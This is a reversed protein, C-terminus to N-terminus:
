AVLHMAMQVINFSGDWVAVRNWEVEDVLQNIITILYKIADENQTHSIFRKMVVVEGEMDYVFKGLLEMGLQGESNRIGLRGVAFCSGYDNRTVIIFDGNLRCTGMPTHWRDLSDISTSNVEHNFRPLMGSNGAIVFIKQFKTPATM